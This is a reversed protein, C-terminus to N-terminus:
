RNAPLTKDPNLLNFAAESGSFFNEYITATLGVHVEYINNAIAHYVNNAVVFPAIGNRGGIEESFETNVLPPMVEFVKVRTRGELSRRLLQTYAHLAAKSASYTPLVISGAFAVISSITVIAAEEQQTLLPLLKENLRIISLYNTLMEDSAKQFANANEALNYVYSKGANNIVMTLDPHTLTLLTVLKDVDTENTVDSQIPIVTPLSEVAKRLTEANRGTIIVTNGKAIFLKAMEYGIGQSGGTILIKNQTTNM